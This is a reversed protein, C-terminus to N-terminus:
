LRVHSWILRTSYTILRWRKGARTVSGISMDHLHGVPLFPLFCNAVHVIFVSTTKIEVGSLITKILGNHFHIKLIVSFFRKKRSIEHEQNVNM